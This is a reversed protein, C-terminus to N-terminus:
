SSTTRAAPAASARTAAACTPRTAPRAPPSASGAGRARSGRSPSTARAGRRATSATTAPSAAARAIRASATAAAARAATPPRRTPATTAAGGPPASAGGASARAGGGVAWSCNAPCAYLYDRRACAPGSFGRDCACAHGQCSGHGSCPRTTTTPCATPELDALVTTYSACGEGARGARCVCRDRDVCQGGLPWSCNHPCPVADLRSCALGYYGGQCACRRGDLCRGHGSCSYRSDATPCVAEKRLGAMPAPRRRPPRVLPRRLRPRVHVRGGRVARPGLLPPRQRRRARLHHTQFAAHHRTEAADPRARGGRTSYSTSSCGCNDRGAPAGALRPATVSLPAHCYTPRRCNTRRTQLECVRLAALPQQLASRCAAATPRPAALDTTRRLELDLHVIVSSSSSRPAKRRERVHQRVRPAEAIASRVGRAARRSPRVATRAGRGGRRGAARRRPRCPPPTPLVEVEDAIATRKASSPRDVSSTDVSGACETESASACSREPPAATGTAPQSFRSTISTCVSAATARKRSATPPKRAASRPSPPTASSASECSPRSSNASMRSLVGGPRSSSSESASTSSSTRLSAPAPPYRRITNSVAGVPCVSRRRAKGSNRSLKSPLTSASLARKEPAILSSEPTSWSLMSGSAFSSTATSFSCFHCSRTASSCRSSVSGSAVSKTTTPM